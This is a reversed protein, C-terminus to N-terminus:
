NKSPPLDSSSPAEPEIKVNMNPYHMNLAIPSYFDRIYHMSLHKYGSCQAMEHVLQYFTEIWQSNEFLPPRLQALFTHHLERVKPHGHYVIDIANISKIWDLEHVTANRYMMLNQLVARKERKLEITYQYRFALIAGVIAGGFGVIAPIVIKAIIDINTM